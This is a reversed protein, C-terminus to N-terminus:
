HTEKENEAVIISSKEENLLNFMPANIKFEEIFKAAALYKESTRNKIMEFFGKLSYSMIGFALALLSFILIGPILYRTFSLEDIMFIRTFSALVVPLIITFISFVVTNSVNFISKKSAAVHKFEQILFDHTTIKNFKGLFNAYKRYRYEMITSVPTKEFEPKLFKEFVDNDLKDWCKTIFLVFRLFFYFFGCSLLIILILQLTWHASLIDSIILAMASFICLSAIIGGSFVVFAKIKQHLTYHKYCIKRYHMQNIFDFVKDTQFIELSEM